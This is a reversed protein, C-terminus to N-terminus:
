VFENSTDLGQSFPLDELPQVSLLRVHQGTLSGELCTEEFMSLATDSTLAKYFRKHTSPDGEVQYELKYIM